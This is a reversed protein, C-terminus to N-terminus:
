GHHNPDQMLHHHGEDKILLSPDNTTHRIPGDVAIRHHHDAEDGTRLHHDRATPHLRSQILRRNPDEGNISIDVEEIRGIRM